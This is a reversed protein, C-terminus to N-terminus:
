RYVNWHLYTFISSFWMLSESRFMCTNLSGRRFYGFCGCQSPLYSLENILLRCEELSAAPPWTPYRLADWTASSASVYASSDLLRQEQEAYPPLLEWRLSKSQLHINLWFKSSPFYSLITLVSSQVSIALAAPLLAVDLKINLICTRGM